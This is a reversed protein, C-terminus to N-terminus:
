SESVEKTKSIAKKSTVINQNLDQNVASGQNGIKWSKAIKEHASKRVKELDDLDDAMMENYLEEAIKQLQKKRNVDTKNEEASKNNKHGPTERKGDPLQSQSESM